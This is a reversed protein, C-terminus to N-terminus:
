TTLPAPATLFERFAADAEAPQDTWVGRIRGRLVVGRELDYGFLAHQVFHSGDLRRSEDFPHALEHYFRHSHPEQRSWAPLPANPDDRPAEAEFGSAEPERGDYALGLAQADRPRLRMAGTSDPGFQSRTLVELTALQGVSRAHVQVELDIADFGAVPTWAARVTLEGWGSPQYTAIVRNFRCEVGVLAYAGCASREMRGQEALGALMLLEM